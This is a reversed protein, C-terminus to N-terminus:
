ILDYFSCGIITALKKLEDTRWRVVGIYRKSFNHKNMNLQHYIDPNRMGSKDIYSRIKRNEEHTTYAM